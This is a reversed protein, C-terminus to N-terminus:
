ATKEIANPDDHSEPIAQDLLRALGAADRRAYHSAMRIGARGIIGNGGTM